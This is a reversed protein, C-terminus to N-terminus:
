LFVIVIHGEEWEVNALQPDALNLVIFDRERQMNIRYYKEHINKKMRSIEEDM